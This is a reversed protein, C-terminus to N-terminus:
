RAWKMVRGFALIFPSVSILTLVSIVAEFNRSNAFVTKNFALNVDFALATIRVMSWLPM